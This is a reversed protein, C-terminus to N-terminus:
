LDREGDEHRGRTEIATGRHFQRGSEGQDQGSAFAVVNDEFTEQDLM